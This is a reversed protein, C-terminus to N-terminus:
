SFNRVPSEKVDNKASSSKSFPNSSFLAPRVRSYYYYHISDIVTISGDIKDRSIRHDVHALILGHVVVLFNFTRFEM